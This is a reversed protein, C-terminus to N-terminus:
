NCGLQFFVFRSIGVENWAFKLFDEQNTKINSEMLLEKIFGRAWDKTANKCTRVM